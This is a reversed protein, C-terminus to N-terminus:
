KSPRKATRRRSSTMANSSLTARLVRRIEPEDDVVLITANNMPKETETRAGPACSCGLAALSTNRAGWLADAITLFPCYSDGSPNRLLKYACSPRPDAKPGSEQTPRLARLASQSM